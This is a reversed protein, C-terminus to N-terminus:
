EVQSRHGSTVSYGPAIPRILESAGWSTRRQKGAAQPTGVSKGGQGTRRPIRKM